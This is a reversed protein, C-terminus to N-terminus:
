LQCLTPLLPDLSWYRFMPNPTYNTRSDEHLLGYQSSRWGLVQYVLMPLPM